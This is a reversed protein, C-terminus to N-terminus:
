LYKGNASISLIEENVIDEYIAPTKGFGLRFHKNFMYTNEKNIYINISTKVKCFILVIMLM